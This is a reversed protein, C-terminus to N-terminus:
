RKAVYLLYKSYENYLLLSPECLEYIVYDIPLAPKYGREWLERV